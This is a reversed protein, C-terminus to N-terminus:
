RAAPAGAPQGADLVSRILLLYIAALVVEGILLSWGAWIL